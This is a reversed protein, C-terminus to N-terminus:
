LYRFSFLRIIFEFKTYLGGVQFQLGNITQVTVKGKEQKISCVPQDLHVREKLKEAIKNAIQSTGGILKREQGGGIVNWIMKSGGASKIYWLYWLLSIECPDASVNSQCNALIFERAEKTKCHFNIFEQYTVNDWEAAKQAAWPKDLPLELSMKDVVDMFYEVEEAAPSTKWSFQPWQTEYVDRKGHSVHVSRQLGYVPYTKIGLERIIRLIYNQSKSIYSAGLDVWGFEEQKVTLTRGGVRNRAEVVHVDVGKEKLLKAACLGSIGAGVIIVDTNITSM